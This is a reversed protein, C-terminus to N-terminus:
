EYFCPKPITVHCLYANGNTKRNFIHLFIIFFVLFTQMQCTLAKVKRGFHCFGHKGSQQLQGKELTKASGIDGGDHLCRAHFEVGHGGSLRQQVLAIGACPQGEDDTALEGHARRRGVAAPMDILQNVSRCHQSEVHEVARLARVTVCVYCTALCRHHMDRLRVHAVERRAVLHEAEIYEVGEGRLCHAGRYRQPERRGVRQLPADYAEHM